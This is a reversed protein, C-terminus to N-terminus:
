TEHARLHTYSVPNVYTSLVGSPDLSIITDNPPYNNIYISQTDDRMTTDSYTSGIFGFEIQTSSTVANTSTDINLKIISDFPDGYNSIYLNNSAAAKTIGLPMKIQLPLPPQQPQISDGM